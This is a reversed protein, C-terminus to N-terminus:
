FTTAPDEGTITFLVETARASGVATLALALGVALTFRGPNTPPGLEQSSPAIVLLVVFL